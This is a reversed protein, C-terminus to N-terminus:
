VNTSVLWGQIGDHSLQWPIRCYPLKNQTTLNKMVGTEIILSIVHLFKVTFNCTFVQCRNSLVLLPGM